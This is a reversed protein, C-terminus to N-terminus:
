FHKIKKEALPLIYMHHYVYWGTDLGSSLKTYHTGPILSEDDPKAVLMKAQQTM